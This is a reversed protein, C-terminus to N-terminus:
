DTILGLLKLSAKGLTLRKAADSPENIDINLAFAYERGEQEVWGVWWGIGRGPANQWGTKGYLKWRTGEELLLIERVSAQV